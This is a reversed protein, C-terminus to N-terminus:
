HKRCVRALCETLTSGILDTEPPLYQEYGTPHKGNKQVRRFVVIEVDPDSSFEDDLVERDECYDGLTGDPHQVVYITDIRESM